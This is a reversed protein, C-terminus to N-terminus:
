PAKVEDRHREGATLASATPAVLLEAGREARRALALSGAASAASMVALPGVLVGTIRWLSIHTDAVGVAVLAAPVLSVAVGSLAGWAAFRPVSLEHFRRRRAAIGLVIAFIVGGVFGPYALAPAPADLFDDAGTFLGGVVAILVGCLGWAVAWTLGMKLAGRVRIWVKTMEDEPEAVNVRLSTRGLLASTVKRQL